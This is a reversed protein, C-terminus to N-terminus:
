NDASLLEIQKELLEVKCKLDRNEIELNIIVSSNKSASIMEGVGTLLWKLNYNPYKVVMRALFESSVPSKKDRGTFNSYSQGFQTFFKTKSVAQEACIMLIREKITTPKGSM